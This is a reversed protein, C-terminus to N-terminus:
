EQAVAFPFRALSEEDQRGGVAWDAQLREGQPQQAQQEAADLGAAEDM